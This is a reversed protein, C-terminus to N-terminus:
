DAPTLDINAALWAFTAFATVNQRLTEPEIMAFTDDSSHYVDFYKTADQVLSAVPMGDRRLFTLDEGGSARNHGREIGLRRRSRHPSKVLKGQPQRRRQEANDPNKRRIQQRTAHKVPPHPQHGRGHLTNVIEAM